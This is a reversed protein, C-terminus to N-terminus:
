HLTAYARGGISKNASAYYGFEDVVSSLRQAFIHWQQERWKAMDTAHFPLKLEIPTLGLCTALKEFKNANFHPGQKDSCYIVFKFGLKRLSQLHTYSNEDKYESYANVYGHQDLAAADVDSCCRIASSTYTLNQGSSFTEFVRIYRSMANSVHHQEYRQRTGPRLNLM